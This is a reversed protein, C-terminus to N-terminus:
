GRQRSWAAAADRQQRVTWTPDFAVHKGSKAVLLLFATERDANPTAPDALLAAAQAPAVPAGGAKEIRELASRAADAKDEDDLLSKLIEVARPSGLWGLAGIGAAGLEELGDVAWYSLLEADKATGCAALLRFLALPPDGAPALGARVKAMASSSGMACAAVLIATAAPEEAPHAAMYELRARAHREGRRWLTEVTVAVVRPDPDTLLQELLQDDLPTKEGLVRAAAARASPPADSRVLRPLRALLERHGTLRMAEVLGPLREGADPIMARIVADAADAGEISLLPLAAAFASPADEAALVDRALLEIAPAGLWALADAHDLLLREIRELEPWSADEAQSEVRQGYLDALADRHFEYLGTEFLARREAVTLPPEPPPGPPEAQEDEDPPEPTAPSPSPAFTLEVNEDADMAQLAAEDRQAQATREAEAVTEADLGAARQEAEQAEAVEEDMARKLEDLLVPPADDTDPAETEEAPAEAGAVPPLIPERPFVHVAPATASWRPRSSGRSDSAGAPMGRTLVKQFSTAHEQALTLEEDGAACGSLLRVAEHAAQIQRTAGLASAQAAYIARLAQQVKTAVDGKARTLVRALLLEAEHAHAFPEVPPQM